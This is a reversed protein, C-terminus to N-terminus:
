VILGNKVINRPSGWQSSTILVDNVTTTINSHTHGYVWAILPDALLYTLDSVYGCHDNSYYINRVSLTPAHHTLVITDLSRDASIAITNDLQEVAYDYLSNMDIYNLLRNGISIPTRKSNVRCGKYVDAWLTTGHIMLDDRLLLRENGPIFIHVNDYQKNIDDLATNISNMEQGYYEHNGPVFLVYDYLASVKDLYVTMQDISCIDGCAALVRYHEDIVEDTNSGNKTRLNFFSTKMKWYLEISKLMQGNKVLEFHTDSMIDMLIPWRGLVGLMMDTMEMPM